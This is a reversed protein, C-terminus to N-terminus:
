AGETEEDIVVTHSGADVHEVHVEEVFQAGLVEIVAEYEITGICQACGEDDAITPEIDVTLELRRDDLRVAEVTARHCPDPASRVGQLVYLEGYRELEIGATDDSSECRNATTELQVDGVAPVEDASRVPLEHREGHDHVVVLTDVADPAVEIRADYDIAGHCEMCEEDGELTSEVGITVTVGDDETDISEITAAHCPNPSLTTGVLRVSEGDAVALATEDDPNGCDAGTTEISGDSDDPPSTDDTGNDDSDDDTGDDSDDPDTGPPQAAACGALAALGGASAALLARRKM